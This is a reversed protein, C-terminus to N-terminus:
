AKELRKLLGRLPLLVTGKGGKEGRGRLWRLCCAVRGWRHPGRAVSSAGEGDPWRRGCAKWATYRNLLYHGTLWCFQSVLIGWAPETIGPHSGRRSAMSYIQKFLEIEDVSAFGVTMVYRRADYYGSSSDVGHTVGSISEKRRVAEVAAINVVLAEIFSRAENVAAHWFGARATGEWQEVHYCLTEGDLEEHEQIGSVLTARLRPPLVVCSVGPDSAQELRGAVLSDIIGSSKGAGSRLRNGNRGSGGFTDM